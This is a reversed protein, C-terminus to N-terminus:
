YVEGRKSSDYGAQFESQDTGDSSSDKYIRVAARLADEFTDIPEAGPQQEYGGERTNPDSPFPAKEVTWTGDPHHDLCIRYAGNEEVSDDATEPALPGGMMDANAPQMAM